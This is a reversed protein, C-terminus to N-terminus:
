HHQSPDKMKPALMIQQVVYSLAIDYNDDVYKIDKRDFNCIKADDDDEGHEVM